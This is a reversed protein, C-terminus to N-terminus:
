AKTLASVSLTTYALVTAGSTGTDTTTRWFDVLKPATPCGQSTTIQLIPAGGNAANERSDFAYCDKVRLDTM